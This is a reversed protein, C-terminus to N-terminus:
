GAAALVACVLSKAVHELTQDPPLFAPHHLGPGGGDLGTGVFMMLIPALEAYYSFDDAGCSRMPEAAVELGVQPLLADTRAVLGADNILAPGGLDLNVSIDVGRAEGLGRCLRQLAEHLRARDANDTTRIIGTCTAQAAIANSADGASLTGISILAPHFPDVTRAILEQVGMVVNALIPVPDIGTHPYAGHGPRGMVVIEFEDFAANVPGAGTSVVGLPVQPQVHAGVVAKVEHAEILGSAVIDAAGSPQNEERPQFLGVLGFPLGIARASELVAWTAAMHVDHGCVHSNPGKASWAVGTDEAIPLADLEARIGVSPGDAGTRVVMGTHAVPQPTAWPMAARLLAPTASETGGVEPCQHLGRRLEEARPLVDDLSRLWTTLLAARDPSM